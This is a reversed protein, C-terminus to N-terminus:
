FHLDSLIAKTGACQPSLTWHTVQSVQLWFIKVNPQGLLGMLFVVPSLLPLGKEVAAEVGSNHAWM